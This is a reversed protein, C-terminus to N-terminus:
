NKFFKSGIEPLEGLYRKLLIVAVLDDFPRSPTQMSIPLLRRLGRPPYIEFFLKRGELTSFSEDILVLPYKSGSLKLKNQFEKSLTGNGLIIKQLAFKESWGKFREIFEETLVVAHYIVRKSSSDYIAIGTKDKGPDIALIM